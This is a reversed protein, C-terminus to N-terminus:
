RGQWVFGVRTPHDFCLFLYAHGSDGWQHAIGKDSQMQRLLDMAKACDPCSPWENGQVWSPWGLLKDGALTLDPADEIGDRDGADQSDPFDAKDPGLEISRAPAPSPM